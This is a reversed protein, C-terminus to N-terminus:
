EKQSLSELWKIWDNFLLCKERIEKLGIDEALPIGSTIKAYNSVIKEIRKSPATEKSDNIEEPSKIKLIEEFKSQIEQEVRKDGDSLRSSMKKTNSFLLGEFEYMQVYPKFRRIVTDGVMKKVAEFIAYEVIRKKEKYDNKSGADVRGPIDSKMGYFDFFTTCFATRDNQLFNIIDGFVRENRIDGGKKGPKGIIPSSINIGFGLLHPVIIKKVFDRETPGECIIIVRTM